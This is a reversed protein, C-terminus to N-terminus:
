SRLATGTHNKYPRVHHPRCTERSAEKETVAHEQPPPPSAMRVAASVNGWAVHKLQLRPCSPAWAGRGEQGTARRERPGAKRM